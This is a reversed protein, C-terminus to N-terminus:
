NVVHHKDLRNDIETENFDNANLALSLTPRAKKRNREVADSVQNRRQDAQKTRDTLSKRKKPPM